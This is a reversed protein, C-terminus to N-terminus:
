MCNRSGSINGEVALLGEDSTKFFCTAELNLDLTWYRCNDNNSCLRGCEQWSSIHRIYFIDNGFFDIDMLPCSYTMNVNGITHNSNSGDTTVTMLVLTVFPLFKM